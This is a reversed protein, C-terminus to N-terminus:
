MDQRDSRASANESAGGDQAHTASRAERYERVAGRVEELAHGSSLRELASRIQETM